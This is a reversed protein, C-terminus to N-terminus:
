AQPVLQRVRHTLLLLALAHELCSLASGTDRLMGFLGDIFCIVAARVREPKSFVYCDLGIVRLM